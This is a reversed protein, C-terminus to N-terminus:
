TCRSSPGTKLPMHFVWFDRDPVPVPVPVLVPVPSILSHNLNPLIISMLVGGGKDANRAKYYLFNELKPM